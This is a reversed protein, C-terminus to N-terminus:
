QSPQNASKTIIHIITYYLIPVGYSMLYFPIKVFIVVVTLLITKM